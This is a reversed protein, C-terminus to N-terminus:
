SNENKVEKLNYSYTIGDVRLYTGYAEVRAERSIKLCDVDPEFVNCIMKTNADKSMKIFASDAYVEVDGAKEYVKIDKNDGLDFLHVGDEKQILVPYKENQGFAKYTSESLEWYAEVGCNVVVGNNNSFKFGKSGGCSEVFYNSGNSIGSRNKISPMSSSTKASNSDVSVYKVVDGTSRNKEAFIGDAVKAVINESAVKYLEQNGALNFIKTNSNSERVAAYTNKDTVGSTVIIACGVKECEYVKDGTEIKILYPVGPEVNGNGDNKEPVVYAYGHGKYEATTDNDNIKKMSGNYIDTGVQWYNESVIYSIKTDASKEVIVEGKRNIIVKKDSKLAYAYNGYFSSAEIFSRDIVFKNSNPDIYGYLGVDGSRYPIPANKDFIASVNYGGAVDSDKGDKAGSIGRIILSVGLIILAVAALAIGGIIFPRKDIRLQARQGAPAAEITPEGFFNPEPAEAVRSARSTRSTRLARSSRPAKPTKPKKVPAADQQEDPSSSMIAGPRDFTGNGDFSNIEDGEYM